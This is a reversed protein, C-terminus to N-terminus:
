GIEWYVYYGWFLYYNPFNQNFKKIKQQTKQVVHKFFMKLFFFLITWPRSYYEEYDAYPNKPLERQKMPPPPTAVYYDNETPFHSASAPIMNKFTKLNSHKCHRVSSHGHHGNIEENNCVAAASSWGFLLGQAVLITVLLITTLKWIFQHCGICYTFFQANCDFSDHIVGRACKKCKCINYSLWPSM